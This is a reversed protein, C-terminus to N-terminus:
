EFHQNSGKTLLKKTLEEKLKNVEQGGEKGVIGHLSLLM